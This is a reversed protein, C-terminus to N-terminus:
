FTRVQCFEVETCMISNFPPIWDSLLAVAVETLEDLSDRAILLVLFLSSAMIMIM